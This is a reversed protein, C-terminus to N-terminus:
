EVAGRDLRDFETMALNYKGEAEEDDIELWETQTKGLQPSHYSIFGCKCYWSPKSFHGYQTMKPGDYAMGGGCKPCHSCACERAARRAIFEKGCIACNWFYEKKVYDEEGYCDPNDAKYVPHKHEFGPPQEPIKRGRKVLQTM